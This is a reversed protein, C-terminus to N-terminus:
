LIVRLAEFLKEGVNSREKSILLAKFKKVIIIAEDLTM